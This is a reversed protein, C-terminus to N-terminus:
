GIKVVGGVIEIEDPTLRLVSEGVRIELCVDAVIEFVNGGRVLEDGQIDEIVSAATVFEDQGVEINLVNKVDLQVSEEGPFDDFVMSHNKSQIVRCHELHELQSLSTKIFVSGIVQPCDLDGQRYEVLVTDGIHPIFQQGSGLSVQQESARIFSTSPAGESDWPFYVKIDFKNNTLMENEKSGSVLAVETGHKAPKTSKTFSSFNFDSLLSAKLQNFYASSDPASLQGIQNAADVAGSSALIKYYISQRSEECHRSFSLGSFDWAEHTVSTVWAQGLLVGAILLYDESEGVFERGWLSVSEHMLTKKGTYSKLYAPSDFLYMVHSSPEHAFYYHIGYEKLLRSLFEFNTEQYQAKYALVPYEKKLRSFDFDFFHNARCIQAVIQPVSLDKFSRSHTEDDLYLFWPVLEIQYVNKEEDEQIQYILGHINKVAQGPRQLQLLLPKDILTEPHINDSWCTIHFKYPTSIEDAGSFRIPILNPNNPSTLTIM